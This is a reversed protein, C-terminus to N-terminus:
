TIGMFGWYILAKNRTVMGILVKVKFVTGIVRPVQDLLMAPGVKQIMDEKINCIYSGCQCRYISSM